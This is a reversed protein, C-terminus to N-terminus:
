NPLSPPYCIRCRFRDHEGDEDVARGAYDLEDMPRHCKPCTVKGIQLLLKVEPEIPLTM